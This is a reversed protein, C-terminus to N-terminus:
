LIVCIKDGNHLDNEKLTKYLDISDMSNERMLYFNNAEQPIFKCKNRAEIIVEYFFKDGQIEISGEKGEYTFTLVVKNDDINNDIFNNNNDVNQIHDSPKNDKNNENQIQEKEEIIEENIKIDKSKQYYLVYPIGNSDIEKKVNYCKNVQFDNYCYWKKDNPSKCYAIFHGSMGSPGLHTLVGILEYGAECSKDVVFKKIDMKLPYDFLVNFELGKGRNLIITLVEPCNYLRNYSNANTQRRCINCYIQNPGFLLEPSENEVFCDELTVSMFDKKKKVLNLRVKELPFILFNHINYSIININCSCCKLYSSQEFYFVKTIISCNSTYYNQRFLRLEQDLNPDNLSALHKDFPDPNNLESHMTEYLFIILDKSDNAQIGKFLPNMESILNKFSYPAFSPKDSKWLINILEAFCKSLRFNQNIKEINNKDLFYKKLSLVHCLCQLTANMYCTAGINELGLCHNNEKSPLLNSSLNIFYAICKNNQKNRIKEINKNLDIGLENFFYKEFNGKYKRTIGMIMFNIFANDTLLIYNIKYQHSDDKSYIIFTDKKFEMFIKKNIFMIKQCEFNSLLNPNIQNIIQGFVDKNIIEFDIPHSFKINTNESKFNEEKLQPKIINIEKFSDDLQNNEILSLLENKNEGKTDLLNKISDYNYFKKYSELWSVDILYYENIQSIANSSILSYKEKENKYLNILTNLIMEKSNPEQFNINNINNGVNLFDIVNNEKPNFANNENDSQINQPTILNNIQSTLIVTGLFNKKSNIINQPKKFLNLNIKKLVLYNKFTNSKLHNAFAVRLFEENLFDLIGCLFFSKLKDYSYVYLIPKHIDNRIYLNSNGFSVKYKFPEINVSDPVNKLRKLLIFLPQSIMSFNEPYEYETINGQNKFISNKNLKITLILSQLTPELENKNQYLEKLKNVSLYNNINNQIPYIKDIEYIIGRAHTYNYTKKFQEIWDKSVLYFDNQGNKQLCFNIQKEVCYLHLIAKLICYNDAPQSTTIVPNNGNNIFQVLDTM